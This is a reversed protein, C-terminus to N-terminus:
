AWAYNPSHVATVSYGVALVSAQQAASRKRNCNKIQCSKERVKQESQGEWQIFVVDLPFIGGSSM